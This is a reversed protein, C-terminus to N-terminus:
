QAAILGQGPGAADPMKSKKRLGRRSSLAAQVQAVENFRIVRGLYHASACAEMM